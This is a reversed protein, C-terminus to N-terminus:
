IIVKMMRTMLMMLKKVMLDKIMTKQEKKKKPKIKEDTEVKLTIEQLDTTPNQLEIEEDDTENPSFVTITSVQSNTSSHVRKTGKFIDKPVKNDKNEPLCNMEQDQSYTEESVTEM